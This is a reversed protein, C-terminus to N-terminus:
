PETDEVGEPETETETETKGAQPDKMEDVKASQLHLAPIMWKGCSCRSGQWSYGGVKTECKPCLFKGEMEQKALESRMWELPEGMFYHSCTKSGEFTSVIRRSNAAKRIFQSQQSEAGPAEHTEIEGQTALSHRCRKCRVHFSGPKRPSSTGFLDLSSLLLGSPDQKLCNTVLFQRYLQSSMDVKFDMERFLQVQEEFGNNPQADPVKRQVAHLAQAYSLKYKYMLYAVVIAVSRSVGQACHVLVAGIHKKETAAGCFLAEDIFEMAKPLTELINSTEEDTIEIQHHIYNKKIHPPLAGPLVSLVHTIKDKTFDVGSNIPEISLLYIGGLIRHAM